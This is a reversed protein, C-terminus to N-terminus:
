PRLADRIRDLLDPLDTATADFDVVLDGDIVPERHVSIAYDYGGGHWAVGASGRRGGAARLLGLLEALEITPEPVAGDQDSM